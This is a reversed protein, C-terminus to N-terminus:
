TKATTKSVCVGRGNRTWRQRDLKHEVIEHSFSHVIRPVCCHAVVTESQVSQKISWGLLVTLAEDEDVCLNKNHKVHFPSNPWVGFSM